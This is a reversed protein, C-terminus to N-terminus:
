SNAVTAERLRVLCAVAPGANDDREMSDRLEAAIAISAVRGLALTLTAYESVDANREAMSNLVHSLASGREDDDVMAVADALIFAAADNSLNDYNSM